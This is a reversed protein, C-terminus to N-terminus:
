LCEEGTIIKELLPPPVRDASVLEAREPSPVVFVAKGAKKKKDAGLARMFSGKDKM